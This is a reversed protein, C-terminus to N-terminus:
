CCCCCCVIPLEDLNFAEAVSSFLLFVSLCCISHSTVKVLSIDSLLSTGFDVFSEDFQVGLFCFFILLSTPLLCISMEGFFVFLHNVSRHFIYEVDSLM